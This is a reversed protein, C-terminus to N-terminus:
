NLQVLTAMRMLQNEPGLSEVGPLVLEVPGFTAVRSLQYELEVPGLTALRPLQYEQLPGLTAM